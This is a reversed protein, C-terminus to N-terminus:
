PKLYVRDAIENKASGDFGTADLIDIQLQATAIDVKPLGAFTHGAPYVETAAEVKIAQLKNDPTVSGPDTAGILVYKAPNKVDNVNLPNGVFNYWTDPVIVKEAPTTFAFSGVISGAVIIAAFAFKAIKM